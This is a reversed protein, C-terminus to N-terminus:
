RSPYAIELTRLALAVLEEDSTEALARAPTAANFALLIPVHLYRHLNVWYNFQGRPLGNEPTFIVTARQDWFVEDFQLYLKDLTGMGMREIAARKAEPLEPDFTISGKKLVGLPVTVLLADFAEPARDAVEVSVGSESYVVREVVSSLVVEYDGDLAQFIQDYGNPFQVDRGDYGIGYESFVTNTWQENIRDPEVGSTTQMAVTELWDPAFVSWIRRGGEGRIVFEDRTEVREMGARDALESLPNGNPGHIWTAGLDVAAGLSRDTWVRGGIRDRAELVTVGVGEAALFSAATLGSMGAGIIAVEGHKAQLLERAARLGSEHAAHVSSHYNPNLAEGAFFLRAGIPRALAARDAEGTGPSRRSPYSYSGYAHPDRSWNTRLYRVPARSTSRSAAGRPPAAACGVWAGVSLLSLLRLTERRSLNEIM